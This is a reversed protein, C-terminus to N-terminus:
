SNMYLDYDRASDDDYDYEGKDDNWTYGWRLPYRTTPTYWPDAFDLKATTKYLQGFEAYYLRGQRTALEKGGLGAEALAVSVAEWTSAWVIGGKVKCVTLEGDNFRGLFVRESGDSVFNITGYAEIDCLPQGEALHHFIHQSDVRCDRDHLVNLEDHNTVVGNHAGLVHGCRFPHANDTTVEGTTAHRTHGILCDPLRNDWAAADSLKGLGRSELGDPNFLGWSHGGRQDMSIALSQFLVKRAAQSVSRGQFQYGFLGCM